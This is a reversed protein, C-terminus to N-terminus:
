QYQGSSWLYLNCICTRIEHCILILLPVISSITLRNQPLVRYISSCIIQGRRRWTNHWAAHVCPCRSIYVISISWQGRWTFTVYVYWKFPRAPQPFHVSIQLPGSGAMANLHMREILNENWSIVLELLLIFHLCQLKFYTVELQILLVFLCNYSHPLLLPWLPVYHFFSSIKILNSIAEM